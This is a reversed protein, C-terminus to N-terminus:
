FVQQVSEVEPIHFKLINEVGDKLTTTASPCGSCSGQMELLVTGTQEDFSRFIISGGHREVFQRVHEELIYIIKEAIDSVEQKEKAYDAYLIEQDQTIFWNSILSLVEDRIDEWNQNNNKTVSIFDQHLFVAEINADRFLEQVLPPIKKDQRTFFIEGKDLVPKEIIFKLSNPNPTEQIQIYM